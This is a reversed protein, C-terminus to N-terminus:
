DVIAEAADDVVERRGVVEEEVVVERVVVGMRRREERKRREGSRPRPKEAVAASGRRDTAVFSRDSLIEVLGTVM